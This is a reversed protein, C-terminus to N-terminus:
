CEYELLYRHKLNEQFLGASYMEVIANYVKETTRAIQKRSMTKTEHGIWDVWKISSTARYYDKFTKFIKKVGYREPHLAMPANPDITYPFPPVVYANKFERMLEASVEIMKLATKETEGPMGVTWYIDIGIRKDRLYEGARRFDEITYRRGLAFRVEDLVSELSIGVIINEFTKLAEEIFERGPIGFSDWYASVNVDRERIQSFLEIYYKTGFAEPDHSFNVIKVGYKKALIDIDEAVRGASRVTLRRGMHAARFGEVGGGCYACNRMCGRALPVWFSPKRCPNYGGPFCRLYERWNRMKHVRTFDYEDLSEEYTEVPKVTIKGDERVVFGHLECEEGRVVKRAYEVMSREALGLAIGDIFKYRKMIEEYFYSSTYGGLVVKADRHERKVARALEIAGYSHTFWHLDIGFIKADLSEILESVYKEPNLIKWLAVNVIESNFGNDELYASMSFLGMPAIPYETIPGQARQAEDLLRRLTVSPHLFVVDGAM